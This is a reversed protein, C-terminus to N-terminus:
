KKRCVLLFRHIRGEICGYEELIEQAKFLNRLSKEVSFNPFEWEIIKAFWILAGVDYFKISRFVEDQKLIEFGQDEFEKSINKLYLNPFPIETNPVLLYVLERDNEAGVQETIFLGDKKLLRYLDKSNFDGHRNIIMDFSDNEFPLQYAGKNHIAQEGAKFNIGLPLLTQECLEINPKYNETAYTNQYPHKLELLFEGGGTDIDLLKDSPKLRNQIEDKYNWPLDSEEEYRNKIHSFDWGKIHAIKEEELWEQKLKNKDM